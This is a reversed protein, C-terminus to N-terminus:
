HKKFVLRNVKITLITFNKLIKGIALALLLLLFIILIFLISLFYSIRHRCGRPTYTIGSTTAAM